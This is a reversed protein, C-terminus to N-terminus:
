FNQVTKIAAEVSQRDAVDLCNECEYELTTLIEAKDTYNFLYVDNDPCVEVVVFTVKETSCIYNKRGNLQYECIRNAPNLVKIFLDHVTRLANPQTLKDLIGAAIACEM